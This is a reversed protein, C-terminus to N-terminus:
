KRRRRLLSMFGVLVTGLLAISAPEPVLSANGGTQLNTNFVAPAGCCEAYVFTFPINNGTAGNYTGNTTALSQPGPSSLVINSSATGGVYLTVGDDSNVTFTEGHTFNGTGTFEFIMGCQESTFQQGCNGYNVGSGFGFLIAPDSFDLPTGASAGGAYSPGSTLTGGFSLFGGITYAGPSSSSFNLGNDSVKFTVNPTGGPISAIVADGAPCAISGCDQVIWGQGTIDAHANMSLGLVTVACAALSSLKM